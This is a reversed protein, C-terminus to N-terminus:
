WSDLNLCVNTGISLNFQVRLFYDDDRVRLHNKFAHSGVTLELKFEGFIHYNRTVLRGNCRTMSAM